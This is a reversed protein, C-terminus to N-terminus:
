RAYDNNFDESFDRSLQIYGALEETIIKNQVPNESVDSLESDVSIVSTGGYSNGFTKITAIDEIFCIDGNEINGSALHENYTKEKQFRKFKVKETSM